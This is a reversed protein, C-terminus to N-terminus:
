EKNTEVIGSEWKDISYVEDGYYWVVWVYLSYQFDGLKIWNKRREDDDFQEQTLYYIKCDIGYYYGKLTDLLKKIDGERNSGDRVVCVVIDSTLTYKLYEKATESASYDHRSYPRFPTTMALEYSEPNYIQDFIERFKKEVDKRYVFSLYNDRLTKKKDNYDLIIKERDWKKPFKESSFVLEYTNSTSYFIDSSLYTVKGSGEPTLADGYIAYKGQMYRTLATDLEKSTLKRHYGKWCFCAALLGLLFFLRFLPWRRKKKQAPERQAENGEQEAQERKEQQM